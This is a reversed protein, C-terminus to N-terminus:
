KSRVCYPCNPNRAIHARRTGRPWQVGCPAPRLGDANSPFSLTGSARRSAIRATSARSASSRAPSQLRTERPERELSLPERPGAPALATAPRAAARRRDDGARGAAGAEGDDDGEPAGGEGASEAGRPAAARDRPLRPESDRLLARRGEVDVRDAMLEKARLTARSVRWIRLPEHRYERLPRAAFTTVLTWTPPPVFGDLDAICPFCGYWPLRGGGTIVVGESLASFEAARKEATESRFYGSRTSLRRRKLEFNQFRAILDYDSWVREDPFERVVAIARRMEGFADRSPETLALSQVVSLPLFIGTVLTGALWHLRFLERLYAALALCLPISVLCLYRFIHPVLTVWQGDQRHSPMAALGLLMVAFFALWKGARFTRLVLVLALLVLLHPYFGAFRSGYMNPLFLMRPYDLLIDRSYPLFIAGPRSITLHYVPDGFRVWQWGLYAGALLAFGGATLLSVRWGRRWHRLGEVVLLPGMLMVWPKTVFAFLLFVASGVACAVRVGSGAEGLLAKRYLFFAMFCYTALVVDNAFLTSCLVDLPFVAMLAMALLAYPREWEQRALLYVLALNVISGATIAGVFGAETVGRLKMSLVVPIWIGFRLAYPDSPNYTGSRLISYYSFFYGPDDGLGYGSFLALRIAVGAAFILTWQLRPRTALDRAIRRLEPCSVPRRYWMLRPGSYGM